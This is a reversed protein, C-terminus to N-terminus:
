GKELSIVVTATPDKLVIRYGSESRGEILYVILSKPIEPAEMRYISRGLEEPDSLRQKTLKAIIHTPAIKTCGTRDGFENLSCTNPDLELNVKQGDAIQGSIGIGHFERGGFDVPAHQYTSDLQLQNRHGDATDAEQSLQVVDVMHKGKADRVTLQRVLSKSEFDARATFPAIMQIVGGAPRKIKFDLIPPFIDEPGVLLCTKFGGTRHVGCAFVTVTEGDQVAAYAAIGHEDCGEEAAQAHLGTAMILTSIAAAIAHALQITSRFM